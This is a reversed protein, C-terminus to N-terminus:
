NPLSVENLINTQNQITRKEYLYSKPDLILDCDRVVDEFRHYM